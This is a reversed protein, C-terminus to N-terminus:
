SWWKLRYWNKKKKILYDQTDHSQPLHWNTFNFSFYFICTVFIVVNPGLKWVGLSNPCDMCFLLWLATLVTILQWRIISCNSCKELTPTRRPETTFHKVRLGPTRPELRVPDEPTKKKPLTRPCSVESGWGLVQSVWSLCSYHSSDGHYLKFLTSFPTFCWEILWDNELTNVVFLPDVPVDGFTRAHLLHDVELKPSITHHSM